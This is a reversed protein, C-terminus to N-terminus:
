QWQTRIMSKSGQFSFSLRTKRIRFRQINLIRDDKQEKLTYHVGWGKSEDEGKGRKGEGEEERQGREERSEELGM